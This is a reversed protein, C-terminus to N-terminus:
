TKAMAHRIRDVIVAHPGVRAGVGGGAVNGIIITDYGHVAAPGPRPGLSAHLITGGLGGGSWSGALTNLSVSSEEGKLRRPGTRFQGGRGCTVAEISLTLSTGYTINIVQGHKSCNSTRVLFVYCFFSHNHDSIPHSKVVRQAALHDNFLSSANLTCTRDIVRTARTM